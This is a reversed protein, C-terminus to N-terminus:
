RQPRSATAQNRIAFKMLIEDFEVGDVPHEAPAAPVFGLRRLLGLSRANCAKLVAYFEGVQHSTALETMMAEVARRALGQGWYASALVYAISAEGGAHITAQVYGVLESSPLRIVWNLWRETGDASERTELKTFRERLWEFSEPPENEHEYIAPDCLVAYMQEAHSALQPELQLGHAQIARIVEAAM